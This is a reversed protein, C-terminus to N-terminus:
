GKTENEEKAVFCPTSGDCSACACCHAAAQRDPHACDIMVGDKGRVDHKCDYCFRKEAKQNEM